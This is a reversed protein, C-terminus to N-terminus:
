TTTHSTLFDTYLEEEESSEEDILRDSLQSFDSSSKSKLDASVNQDSAEMHQTPNSQPSVHRRRARMQTERPVGPMGSDEDEEEPSQLDEM